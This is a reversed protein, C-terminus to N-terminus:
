RNEERWDENEDEHDHPSRDMGVVVRNGVRLYSVRQGFVFSLGVLAVLLAPVILELTAGRPSAQIAEFTWGMWAFVLAYTLIDIFWPKDMIDICWNQTRIRKNRRYTSM